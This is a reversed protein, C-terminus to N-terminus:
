SRTRTPSRSGATSSRATSPRRGSTRASARSWTRGQGRRRVARQLDLGGPRRRHDRHGPQAGQPLARHRHDHRRHRRRRGLAHDAGPRSGSRRARPSTTPRRTPRTSTSTPSSRARPDGRGAPGLGLLLVRAVRARRQDPLRRGRRRLRAAPRDEGQVDQRAHGRDRPLGEAARGDGPGHRHQGVDARRAHRGPAAARRARRGRDDRGGVRDKISGGPNLAEVKAVLQPTLGAGLRSLRVLPTDGITDLISDRIDARAQVAPEM